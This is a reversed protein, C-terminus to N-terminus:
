CTKRIAVQIQRRKPSKAQPVARRSRRVEIAKRGRLGACLSYSAVVLSKIRVHLAERRPIQDIITKLTRMAQEAPAEKKGYKPKVQGLLEDVQLKFINSKFTEATYVGDQLSPAPRKPPKQASTSKEGVTQEKSERKVAAGDSDGEAAETDEDEDEELGSAEEDDDDQDNDSGGSEEFSEMAANGGDGSDEANSSPINIGNSQDFDSFSGDSDDECVSHQLKRRKTAPLAMNTSNKRHKSSRGRSIRTAFKKVLASTNDILGVRDTGAYLLTLPHQRSSDQAAGRM